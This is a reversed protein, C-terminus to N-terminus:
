GNPRCFSEERISIVMMADQLIVPIQLDKSKGMLLHISEKPKRSALDRGTRERTGGAVGQM